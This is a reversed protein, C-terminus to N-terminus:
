RDTRKRAQLTMQQVTLVEMGLKKAKEDIAGLPMGGELAECLQTALQRIAQAKARALAVDVLPVAPLASVKLINTAKAFCGSAEETEKSM